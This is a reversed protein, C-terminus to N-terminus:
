GKELVDRLLDIIQPDDQLGMLLIKDLEPLERNVTDVTVNEIRPEEFSYVYNDCEINFARECASAFARIKNTQAHLLQWFKGSKRWILYNKGSKTIRHYDFYVFDYRHFHVLLWMLTEPRREGYGSM